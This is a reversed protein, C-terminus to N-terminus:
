EQRVLLFEDAGAGWSLSNTQFGIISSLLTFMWVLWTSLTQLKSATTGTLAHNLGITALQTQNTYRSSKRTKGSIVNGILYVHVGIQRIYKWAKGAAKGAIGKELRPAAEVLHCVFDKLTNINKNYLLSFAIADFSSTTAPYLYLQRCHYTYQYALFTPTKSIKLARHLGVGDTDGGIIFIHPKGLDAIHPHTTFLTPMYIPAFTELFPRLNLGRGAMLLFSFSLINILSIM